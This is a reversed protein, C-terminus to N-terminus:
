QKFLRLFGTNSSLESNYLLKYRTGAGGAGSVTFADASPIEVWEDPKLTTSHHIVFGSAPLSWSLFFPTDARSVQLVSAPVAACKELLLPDFPPGDFVQTFPTAVGGTVAVQKLIVTQGVNTAQAPIAGFYAYMNGAFKAATTELFQGSAM